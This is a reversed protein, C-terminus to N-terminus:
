WGGRSETLVRTWRRDPEKDWGRVGVGLIGVTVRQMKGADQGRTAKPEGAVRQRMGARQGLEARQRIGVRQGM